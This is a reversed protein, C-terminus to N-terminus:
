RSRVREFVFGARWHDDIDFRQEDNAADRGSGGVLAEPEDGLADHDRRRQKLNRM